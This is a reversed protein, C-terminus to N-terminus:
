RSQPTVDGDSFPHFEGTFTTSTKRCTWETKFLDDLNASVPLSVSRSLGGSSKSSEADGEVYDDDMQFIEELKDDLDEEKPLIDAHRPINIPKSSSTVSSDKTKSRKKMAIKKRRKRKTKVEDSSDTNVTNNVTGSSITDDMNPVNPELKNTETVKTDKCPIDSVIKNDCDTKGLLSSNLVLETENFHSNVTCPEPNLAKNEENFFTSLRMKELESEINPVDPLPSTAM